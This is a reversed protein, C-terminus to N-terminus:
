VERLSEGEEGESSVGRLPAGAGTVSEHSEHLEGTSYSPRMTRGDIAPKRSRAPWAGPKNVTDTVNWTSSSGSKKWSGCGRWSSNCDCPTSKPRRGRKRSKCSNGYNKTRGLWDMWSDRRRRRRAGRNRARKRRQRPCGSLKGYNNRWALGSRQRPRSRRSWSGPLTLECSNWSRKPWRSSRGFNRFM